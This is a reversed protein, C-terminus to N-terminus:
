GSLGLLYRIELPPGSARVGTLAADAEQSLATVTVIDPIEPM